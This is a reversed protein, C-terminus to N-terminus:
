RKCTAACGDCVEQTPEEKFRRKINERMKESREIELDRPPSRRAAQCVMCNCDSPEIDHIHPQPKKRGPSPIIILTEPM